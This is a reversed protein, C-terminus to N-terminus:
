WGCIKSTRMKRIGGLRLGSVRVLTTGTGGGSVTIQSAYNSHGGMLVGVGALSGLRLGCGRLTDGRGSMTVAIGNGRTSWSARAREHQGDTMYGSRSCEVEEGDVMVIPTILTVPGSSPIVIHRFATGQVRRRPLM